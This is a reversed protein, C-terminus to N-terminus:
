RLNCKIQDKSNTSADAFLNMSFRGNYAYILGKMHQFNIYM